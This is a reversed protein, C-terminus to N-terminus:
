EFLYLCDDATVYWKGNSSKLFRNILPCFNDATKYTGLKERILTNLVQTNTAVLLTDPGTEAVDNVLEEALGNDKRYNIFRTGDYVSLGGHIIFYMRGKNDQMISKVRSNVLAM